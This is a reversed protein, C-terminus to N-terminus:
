GVTVALQQRQGGIAAFLVFFTLSPSNKETEKIGGREMVNRVKQKLKWHSHQELTQVRVVLKM